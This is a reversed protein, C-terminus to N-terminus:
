RGAEQIASSRSWGRKVLRDVLLEVADRVDLYDTVELGRDECAQDISRPSLNLYPSM